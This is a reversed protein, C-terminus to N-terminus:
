HFQLLNQLKDPHSSKLLADEKSILNRRLLYALSQDLTQMGENASLQIVNAIEHTRKERVLNRVAPSAIM